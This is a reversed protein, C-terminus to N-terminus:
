RWELLRGRSLDPWRLRGATRSALERGAAVLLAMWLFLLSPLLNPLFRSRLQAGSEVYRELSRLREGQYGLRRSSAILERDAERMTSDISAVLDPYSVVWPLGAALLLLPVLMWARHGSEPGGGEERLGM